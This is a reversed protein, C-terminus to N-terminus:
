RGVEGTSMQCCRYCQPYLPSALNGSTSPHVYLLPDQLRHSVSGLYSDRLARREQARWRWVGGGDGRELPGQCPLWLM